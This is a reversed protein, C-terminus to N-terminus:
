LGRERESTDCDQSDTCRTQITVEQRAREAISIATPADEGQAIIYGVRCLGDVLQPVVQGIGTTIEAEVVGDMSRARNLGQIDLVVGPRPLLFRIAAGRHVKQTVDPRIGLALELAAQILSVGTSLPTLHSAIFGGGFRAASEIVCPGKPSMRIETHSGCWDIGLAEVADVATQAIQDLIPQPAQSSQSHGIEVFYPPGTTQKDTVAVVQTHGDYTVAEVSFEEGEIYEEVLVQPSRSPKLAREFAASIISRDAEVSLRSVGRGGSSVAPKIIVYDSVGAFGRVQEIAEDCSTVAGWQPVPVGADEYSQRMMQKHTARQVAELSPGPLELRECLRAMTLLPYEVAFGVVGTVQHYQAVHLCQDFDGLDFSYAFDALPLAPADAKADIAVTTLGMRRAGEFLPTQLDGAGLILIAAKRM